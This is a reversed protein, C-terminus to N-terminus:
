HHFACKSAFFTLIREHVAQDKIDNTSICISRLPFVQRRHVMAIPSYQALEPLKLERVYDFDRPLYDTHQHLPIFSLFHAGIEQVAAVHPVLVFKPFM